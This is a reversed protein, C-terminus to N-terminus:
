RWAEALLQPALAQIDAILLVESLAARRQEFREAVIDLAAIGHDEQDALATARHGRRLM